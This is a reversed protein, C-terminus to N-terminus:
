LIVVNSMSLVTSAQKTMQKAGGEVNYKSKMCMHEQERKSWWRGYSM